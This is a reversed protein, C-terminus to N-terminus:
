VTRAQGIISYDRMILVLRHFRSEFRKLIFSLKILSSNGIELLFDCKKGFLEGLEGFVRRIGGFRGRRINNFRGLGHRRRPRTFGAALGSMGSKMMLGKGLILEVINLFVNRDTAGLSMVQSTLRHKCRFNLLLGFQRCLRRDDGFMTTEAFVTRDAFANDIGIKRGTYDFPLKKTGSQQCEQSLHFSRQVSGVTTKGVEAPIHQLDLDGAAVQTIGNGADVRCQDFWVLFKLVLDGCLRHQMDVLGAPLVVADFEPNPGKGGTGQAEEDDCPRPRALHKSRDQAFGVATRNDAVKEAGINFIGVKKLLEAQCVQDPVDFKQGCKGIGVILSEPLGQEALKSSQKVEPVQPFRDRFRPEVWQHIFDSMADKRQRVSFIQGLLGQSQCFAYAFVVASQESEQKIRRDRRGVIGGLLGDTMRYQVLSQGLAATREPAPLPVLSDKGHDAGASLLATRGPLKQLVSQGSMIEM